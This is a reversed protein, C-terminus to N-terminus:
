EAGLVRYFDQASHIVRLIDLEDAKTRYVILYKPFGKVFWMRIDPEDLDEIVHGIKPSKKLTEISYDVADVFRIAIELGDIMLYEAAETIDVIAQTRRIVNM